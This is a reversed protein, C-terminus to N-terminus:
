ACMHAKIYAMLSEEGGTRLEKLAKKNRVLGARNAELIVELALKASIARCQQSSRM